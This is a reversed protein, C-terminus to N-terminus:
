KYYNINNNNKNNNYHNLSNNNTLNSKLENLQDRLNNFNKKYKRIQRSLLKGSLIFQVSIITLIIIIFIQISKQKSFNM